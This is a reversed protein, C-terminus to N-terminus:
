LLGAPWIFFFEREKTGQKDSESQKTGGPTFRSKCYFRVKANTYHFEEIELGEDPIEKLLRAEALTKGTADLARAGEAIGDNWGDSKEYIYDNHWGAFQDSIVYMTNLDGPRRKSIYKLPMTGSYYPPKRYLIQEYTVVEGELEIDPKGLKPPAISLVEVPQRAREPIVPQPNPATAPKECAAVFLVLVFLSLVVKM